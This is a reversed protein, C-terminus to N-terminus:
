HGTGRSELSRRYAAACGPCFRNSKLDVEEISNSFGMACGPAPCHILGFTHGLEHVAEKLLRDHMLVSDEPLGYFRSNLRQFAQECNRAFIGALLYFPAFLLVFGATFYAWLALTITFDIVPQFRRGEASTM